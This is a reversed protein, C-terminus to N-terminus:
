KGNKLAAVKPYFASISILSRARALGWAMHLVTLPILNFWFKKGRANRLKLISCFLPGAIMGAIAVGLVVYQRFFAALLAGILVGIGCVLIYASFAVAWFNTLTRINEIFVKLVHTGHWRQKQYFKLLTQPTTWHTVAMKRITRVTFGAAKARFCLECDESTKLNENFGGIRLFTSRRMLMNGSPVFTADGERPAYGEQFWVRAVWTSDEPIDYDGGIVGDSESAMYLIANDIWNTPVSCDADLFALIEGQAAAVGLNRLTSINVGPHQLVTLRLQTSFTHAIELTRDTSGNDVLVVEFGDVPYCSGVLSSLCRGIMAEENRAPIIVSVRVAGTSLTNISGSDPVPSVDEQSVANQV